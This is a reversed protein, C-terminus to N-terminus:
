SKLKRSSRERMTPPRSGNDVPEEHLGLDQKAIRYAIDFYNSLEPSPQEHKAADNTLAKQLQSMAPLISPVTWIHFAHHPWESTGM